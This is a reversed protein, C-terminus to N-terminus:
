CENTPHFRWHGSEPAPPRLTDVVAGASDVLVVMSELSQTGLRYALNGDSAITPGSAGPAVLFAEGSVQLRDLSFPLAWVGAGEGLRSYFIFGRPDYIPEWLYGAPLKLLDRRKGGEVVALVIAGGQALHRVHVVARGGPLIHPHHLDADLSDKELFVAPTGGGAPVVYLHDIGKAFIIRGDPTWTGGSGGSFDGVACVPTIAGSAVAVKNLGDARGIVISAGDPSWAPRFDEDLGEALNRSTIQALDRVWLTRGVVYAIQRGDPSLVPAGVEGRPHELMLTLKRLHPAPPAPRLLTGSLLAAVAVAALAVGWILRERAPSRPALVPAAEPADVVRGGQVDELLLVAEGIDRLRRHPTKELCRDILARVARPLDAPLLARDPEARLVAALTDSITEGEFVRRGTLLEYLVVGFAWIDARRDVPKGRAQEPSMYAATGIIMGSAMTGAFTPSQSLAPSSTSAELAKALGFDLVKVRGEPTIRVNAPKLDRHIVGSDHAAELALAIQRAIEIAEAVPTPGAAIRQVLDDGPVLEMTLYRVGEVTHVSFVTAINPHNLSALLRAEREFRAMREPDAAFAAPLVKIAVQRDLTTDTAKWVVGMGGEGLKESLRYHLIQQGSALGRPDNSM